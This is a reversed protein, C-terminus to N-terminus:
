NNLDPSRPSCSLVQVGVVFCHQQLPLVICNLLTKRFHALGEKFFVNDLHSWTRYVYQEASITSKWMDVSHLSYM